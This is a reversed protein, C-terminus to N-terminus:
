LNLDFAFRFVSATCPKITSQGGNEYRRRLARELTDFMGHDAGKDGLM